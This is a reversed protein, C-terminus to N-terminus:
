ELVNCSDNREEREGNKPKLERASKEMPGADTHSVVCTAQPERLVLPPLTQPGM